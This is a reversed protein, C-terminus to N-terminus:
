AQNDMLIPGKGAYIYISMWVGDLRATKVRRNVIHGFGNTAEM